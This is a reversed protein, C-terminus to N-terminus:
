SGTEITYGARYPGAAYPYDPLYRLVDLVIASYQDAADIAATVSSLTFGQRILVGDDRWPIAVGAVTATPTAGNGFASYPVVLSAVQAAGASTSIVTKGDIAVALGAVRNAVAVSTTLTFAVSRVILLGGDTNTFTFNAGPAPNPVVIRDPAPFNHPTTM